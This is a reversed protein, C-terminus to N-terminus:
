ASRLDKKNPFAPSCGAIKDDTQPLRDAEVPVETVKVGGVVPDHVAVTVAEAVAFGLTVLVNVMVTFAAVTGVYVMLPVTVPNFLPADTTNSSLPASGTVTEEL